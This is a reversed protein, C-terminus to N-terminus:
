YMYKELKLLISNLIDVNIFRCTDQYFEEKRMSKEVIQLTNKEIESLDLGLENVASLINDELQKGHKVLYIDKILQVMNECVFDAKGKKLLMRTFDITYCISHNLSKLASESFNSKM